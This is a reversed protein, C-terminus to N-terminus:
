VSGKHTGQKEFLHETTSILDRLDLWAVEAQEYSLRASTELSSLASMGNWVSKAVGPKLDLLEHLATECQNLHGLARSLAVACGPNWVAIANMERETPRPVRQLSILRQNCEPKDLAGPHHMRM